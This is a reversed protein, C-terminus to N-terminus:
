KRRRKGLITVFGHNVTMLPHYFLLRPGSYRMVKRIMEKQKMQYCHVQCQSCFTKTEMFPCHEIREKAYEFLLRYEESMVGYCYDDHRRCYLKIMEEVVRIERKRKKEINM